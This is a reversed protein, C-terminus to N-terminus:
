ITASVDMQLKGNRSTVGQGAFDDRGRLDLGSPVVKPLIAGFNWDARLRSDKNRTTSAGSTATNNETVQITIINGVGLNPRSFSTLNQNPGDVYLSDALAPMVSGAFILTVSLAFSSLLRM